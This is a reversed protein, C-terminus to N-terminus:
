LIKKSPDKLGMAVQTDHTEKMGAEPNPSAAALEQWSMPEYNHPIGTRRTAEESAHRLQTKFDKAGRVVSGTAVSFHEHIMAPFDFSFQRRLLEGCDQCPTDLLQDRDEMDCQIVWQHANSCKYAYRPM